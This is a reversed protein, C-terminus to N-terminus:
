TVAAVAVKKMVVPIVMTPRALMAGVHVNAEVAANGDTFQSQKLRFAISETLTGAFLPTDHCVSRSGQRHNTRQEQHHWRAPAAIEEFWRPPRLGFGRRDRNLLTTAALVLGFGLGLLRISLRGSWNLTATWWQIRELRTRCPLEHGVGGTQWNRDQRWWANATRPVWKRKALVGRRGM